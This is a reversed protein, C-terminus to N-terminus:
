TANHLQFNGYYSHVVVPSLGTTLFSITFGDSGDSPRILSCSYGAKGIRKLGYDSVFHRPSANVLSGLIDDEFSYNMNFNSLSVQGSNWVDFRRLYLRTVNINNVSINAYNIMKDKDPLALAVPPLARYSLEGQDPKAGFLPISIFPTTSGPHVYALILGAVVLGTVAIIIPKLFQVLLGKVFWNNSLMNIISKIYSIIKDLKSCLWTCKDLSSLSTEGLYM